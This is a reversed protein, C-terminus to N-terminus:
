VKGYQPLKVSMLSRAHRNIGANYLKNTMAVEPSMGRKIRVWFTGRNVKCRADRYWSSFHKREGFAEIWLTKRKNVGQESKTIFKCNNPEYDGDVDIREISAGSYYENKFAWNFFEGADKWENCVKIGRGGYYKWSQRSPHHCRNLMDRWMRYIPTSSLGHTISAKGRQCGCSKSVGTTLSAKFVEKTKGCACKCIFYRTRKAQKIVRWKGYQTKYKM